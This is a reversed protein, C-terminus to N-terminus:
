FTGGNFKCYKCSQCCLSCQSNKQYYSSSTFIIIVLVFIIGLIVGITSEFSLYIRYVIFSTIYAIGFHLGISIATWKSGIEKKMLWLSSICPIYLLSFVMFSLASAPTFGIISQSSCLALGLTTANGNNDISVGNVIGLTGVIMEKAVIGALLASTAGWNGFGMPSFIPAIVQSIIKLISREDNDVVYILNFNFSQLFWIIISFILLLGGIKALFLKINLWVNNIISLISPFKYDPFELVFSGKKSKLAGKELLIAIVCSILISILYLSFILIINGNFFTSSFIVFLPLKASCSFYPTLLITKIKANTTDLNRATLIATTTCGFGMLLTFLSKGSLGFKALIDDFLFALRSLYGTQELINLGFFLLCIQPLYGVVTGIGSIIAKDFFDIFIPNLNQEQFYQNSLKGIWYCCDNVLGSLYTGVPGFTMYFIIFIIGLFIPISLWRNLLITDLVLQKKNQLHKIGSLAEDIFAYRKMAISEINWNYQNIIKKCKQIANFDIGLKNVLEIDNECIKLLLFINSIEKNIINPSFELSVNEFEKYFIPLEVIQTTHVVLSDILMNTDKRKSADVIFVPIRLKTELKHKLVSCDENKQKNIVLVVDLGAELLQLTLYLNRRISNRTCVNVVTLKNSILYNITSNEEMSYASMSYIGPLDVITYNSNKYNIEKAKVDVTVGHWNGVHENSHTLSNFLTSKGTNPNGVLAFTRSM